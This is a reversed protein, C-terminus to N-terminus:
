IKGWIIDPNANMIADVFANADNPYMAESMTRFGSKTVFSIFCRKNLVTMGNKLESLSAAAVPLPQRRTVPMGFMNNIDKLELVISQRNTYILGGTLYLSYGSSTTFYPKAPVPIDLLQSKGEKVLRDCCKIFSMKPYVCTIFLVASVGAILLFVPVGAIILTFTDIDVDSMFLIMDLISIAIPFVVCGAAGIILFIM